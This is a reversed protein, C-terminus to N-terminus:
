SAPARRFALPATGSCHEFLDAPHRRGAFDEITMGGEGGAPVAPAMAVIRRM